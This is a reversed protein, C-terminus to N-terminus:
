AMHYHVRSCSRPPQEYWLQPRRCLLWGKSSFWQQRSCRMMGSAGLCVTAPLTSSAAAAAFLLLYRRCLWYYDACCSVIIDTFMLVTQGSYRIDLRDKCKRASLYSAIILLIFVVAPSTPYAPTSRSEAIVWKEFTRRLDEISSNYPVNDVKLTVMGEINPPGNRHGYSPTVHRPFLPM